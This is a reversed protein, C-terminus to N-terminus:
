AAKQTPQIEARGHELKSPTEKAQRLNAFRSLADRMDEGALVAERRILNIQREADSFSCEKLAQCLEDVCEVAAPAFQELLMTLFAKTEEGTPMKFELQQEFRRWVAPDLLDPHNTAAIALGSPPWDDLQQLLVTVLRKLEGIESLDDRRKAIADFEDLLLVCDVTKAYELVNRLNTGTRGLYSSMVSSLDLTLLPKGLEKAIWRAALTKGVGPPGTFLVARTPDLGSELLLQINKREMVLRNLIKRLNEPYVPGVPVFPDEEVRLLDFRSSSDVPMFKDSDAYLPTSVTPNKRLLEILDRSLAPATAKNRIIRHLLRQADQGRGCLAIKALRVFDERIKATITM